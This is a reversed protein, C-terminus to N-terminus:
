IFLAGDIYLSNPSLFPSLPAGENEHSHHRLSRPIAAISLAADQRAGSIVDKGPELISVIFKDSSNLGKSWM